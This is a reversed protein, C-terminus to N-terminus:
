CRPFNKYDDGITTQVLDKQESKVYEQFDGMIKDFNM